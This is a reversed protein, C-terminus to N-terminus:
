YRVENDDLKCKGIDLGFISIDDDVSAEGMAEGEKKVMAADAALAKAEQKAIAKRAKSRRKKERNKQRKLALRDEDKQILSQIGGYGSEPSCLNLCAYRQM